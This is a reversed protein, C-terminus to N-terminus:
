SHSFSINSFWNSSFNNAEQIPRTRVKLCLSAKLRSNTVGSIFFALFPSIIGLDCLRDHELYHLVVFHKNWTEGTDRAM